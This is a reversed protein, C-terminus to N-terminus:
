QNVVIIKNFIHKRINIVNQPVADSFTYIYGNPFIMDISQPLDSKMGIMHTLNIYVTKPDEERNIWLVKNKYTLLFIRFNEIHQENINIEFLNGTLIITIKDQYFEVIMINSLLIIIDNHDEIFKYFIM